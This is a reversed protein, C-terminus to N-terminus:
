QDCRARAAETNWAPSHEYTKTGRNGTLLALCCLCAFREMQPLHINKDFSYHKSSQTYAVLCTRCFDSAQFTGQFRKDGAENQTHADALGTPFLLNESWSGKAQFGESSAHFVSREVVQTEVLSTKDTELAGLLVELAKKQQQQELHGL